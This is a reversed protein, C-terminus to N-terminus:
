RRTDIHVVDACVIVENGAPIEFEQVSGNPLTVRLVSAEDSVNTYVVCGERLTRQWDSAQVFELAEFQLVLLEGATPPQARLTLTVPVSRSKFGAASFTIRGEYSGAALGAIAVSVTIETANMGETASLRLWPVDTSAQWNLTGGGMNNIRLTQAAPDSEGETAQFSLSEPEVEIRPAQIVTFSVAGSQATGAPTIVSFTRAGAAADEAITLTIPLATATGGTRLVATLGSGSFTVATAGSLNTGFITAPVTSGQLGSSPEIKTITPALPASPPQGLFLVGVGFENDPGPPGHDEARSSLFEQIQEPSFDPFAQKVLAAAGAVHPSSASTGFFPRFTRSTVGDTASIDPKRRGDKTPGQSSFRELHSDRWFVAGVTLVNPSIAPEFFSVSGQAVSHEFERNILVLDLLVPQADPSKKVAIHYTGTRPIRFAIFEAAEGVSNDDESSAIVRLQSDLLFLDYNNQSSRCPDEWSLLIYVQDNADAQFSNTEDTATFNLEDDNDDDRFEGQWHSEGDNGASAAWTIGAQHARQFQKELFGGHLCGTPAGWSTNIVNVGQQILFNVAQPVNVDVTLANVLFFHAAPAIDYVIEAVATGHSAVEDPDDFLGEVPLGFGRVTVRDEPPLDEGLLEKYGRFGADLIAVKVGTGTWGAQQWPEAGMSQRGESAIFGQDPLLVRPFRVFRVDRRHALTNLSEIPVLAQVFSEYSGEYNGGLAIVVQEMEDMKDFNSVELIVRVRGSALEARSTGRLTAMEMSESSTPAGMLKILTSQLKPSNELVYEDIQLRDQALSGISGLMLIALGIFIKLRAM